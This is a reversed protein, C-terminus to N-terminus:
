GSLFPRRPSVEGLGDSEDQRYVDLGILYRLSSIESLDVRPKMQLDGAPM